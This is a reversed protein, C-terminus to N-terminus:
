IAVAQSSPSAPALAGPLEGSTIRNRGGKKSAYLRIDAARYLEPWNNGDRGLQVVGGSFAIRISAKDFQFYSAVLEERLREAIEHAESLDTDPLHVAFEEGGLRYPVDTKRLRKRLFDAFFVLAADGAEHGCHDNIRKFHDLDLLILAAAQGTQVARDREQELRRTLTRRNLLGTLPDRNAQDSLSADSRIGYVLLSHCFMLLVISSVSTHVLPIAEIESPNGIMRTAFALAMSVSCTVPAVRVSLLSYSLIPITLIWVFSGPHLDSAQAAIINAFMGLLYITALQQGPVGHRMAILLGASTVCLAFVLAALLYAGLWIDIATFFLTAPVSCFLLVRLAHRRRMSQSDATLM